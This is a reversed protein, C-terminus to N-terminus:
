KVEQEAKKKKDAKAINYITARSIGTEKSCDVVSGFPNDAVWQKIIRINEKRTEIGNYKRRDEFM